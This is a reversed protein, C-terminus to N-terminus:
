DHISVDSLDLSGDARAVFGSVRPDIVGTTRFQVLPVVPVRELIALEIDRWAAARVSAIPERGAGRLFEDIGADAFGSINDPSASDFLTPLHSVPSRSVGLWGFVFLQQQGTAILDEYTPVPLSVLDVDIGVEGLQREIASGVGELSESDDVLLRLPLSQGDPFAAAVLPTAEDRSPGCVGRCVEGGGGAVGDPIVGHAPQATPGFVTDVIGQRDIALAIARRLGADGLPAVDSDIGLMLGGHFPVLGGPGTFEAAEALRDPPATTWDLDGDLFADLAAEEDPFLDVTVTEPGRGSRRALTVRDVGDFRATYDGSGNPALGEGASAREITSRSAIAYLPSALLEPLVASPETLTIDVTKAGAAAIDAIRDLRVAALSGRGGALVRDLSFVVDDATLPSGDAFTADPDIEFRWVTLDVNASFTALGPQPAGADDIVSLTDYLLDALVLQPVSAPSAGVPDFSEIGVLGLRLTIPTDDDDPATSEGDTSSDTSSSTSADPDADSRDTSEDSGSCALVLLAMACLVLPGRPSRRQRM